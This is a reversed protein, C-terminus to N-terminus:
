ETAHLCDFELLLDSRCVDGSLVLYPTGAPLRARLEREVLELDARDRLYAKFLTKTGFRAPLAPAHARARTLLSDLNRIIEDIQRRVNGTHQSAHGVISATGSIMLLDPAVLMAGSFVPPKPGYQGPYRYTAVQRPNELAIGPERGALWYV